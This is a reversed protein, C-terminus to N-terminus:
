WVIIFKTVISQKIFIYDLCAGSIKLVYVSKFFINQSKIFRMVSSPLSPRPETEYNYNYTHSTLLQYANLDNCSQYLNLVQIIYMVQTVWYLKMILNIFTILDSISYVFALCILILYLLNFLFLGQYNDISSQNRICKLHISLLPKLHFITCDQKLVINLVSPQNPVDRKICRSALLFVPQNLIVNYM